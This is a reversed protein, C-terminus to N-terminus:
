YNKWVSLVYRKREKKFYTHKTQWVQSNIVSSNIQNSLPLNATKNKKILWYSLVMQHVIWGKWILTIKNRSEINQELPRDIRCQYWLKKAALTKFYNMRPLVLEQLGEEVKNELNDQNNKELLFVKMEIIYFNCCLGVSVILINDLIKFLPMYNTISYLSYLRNLMKEWATYILKLSNITFKCAVLFFFIVIRM